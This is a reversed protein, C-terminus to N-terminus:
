NELLSRRSSELIPRFLYALLTREGDLVMVEAPMGALLTVGELRAIESDPMEVKALFYHEGTRDDILVDASVSRLNGHIQPLNRQRFATLVVRASMGPVIREIDTPRVRADIVLNVGTPVIELIPAGPAIVGGETTVHINMVTGAIPARIVTRRLIDERSPMQGRLEALVRSVEALESEIAEQREKTLTLLQLRTESVAQANEAIKARTAARQGVIEARTRKLELM